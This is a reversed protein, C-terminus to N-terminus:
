QCKCKYGASAGGGAAPAHAPPTLSNDFLDVLNCSGSCSGGANLCTVIVDGIKSKPDPTNIMDCRVVNKVPKYDPADPPGIWDPPWWWVGIVNDPNQLRGPDSPDKKTVTCNDNGASCKAVYPLLPIIPDSDVLPTEYWYWDVDGRETKSYYNRKFYHGDKEVLTMKHRSLKGLSGSEQAPNHVVDSPKGDFKIAVDSKSTARKTKKTRRVPESTQQQQQESIARGIDIGIGIGTGVGRMGRDDGRRMDDRHMRMDEASARDIRGLASLALLFILSYRLFHRRIESSNARPKAVARLPAFFQLM